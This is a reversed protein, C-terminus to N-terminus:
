FYSLAGETSQIDLLVKKKLILVIRGQLKNKEKVEMEEIGLEPILVWLQRIARMLRESNDKKKGNVRAFLESYASQVHTSGIDFTISNIFTNYDEQQICTASSSLTVCVRFGTLDVSVSLKETNREDALTKLHKGTIKEM